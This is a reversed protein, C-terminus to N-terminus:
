PTGLMEPM